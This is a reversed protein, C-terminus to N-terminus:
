IKKERSEWKGKFTVHLSLLLLKIDLWPNMKEIYQLDYILKEAPPSDYKGYIQAIGTLGPQVMLRQSFNPIVNNFKKMLEPREARPGVFSMDGKLINIVQPLEDLATARLIRGLRTVRPDDEEAWAVGTAKEADKVMSRFKFARFPKGHLGAREQVYFIPNGDELWIFLPIFIWLFVWIPSLLLHALFLISIDLFRKYPPNKLPIAMLM